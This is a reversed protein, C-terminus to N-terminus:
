KMELQLAKAYDSVGRDVISIAYEQAEKLTEFAGLTLRFITGKNPTYAPMMYVEYGAKMLRQFM